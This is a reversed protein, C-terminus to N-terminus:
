GERKVAGRMRGHIDIEGRAIRTSSIPVGDEALVYEVSVIRIPSRGADHRLENIKLAVPYTEPSVVIYDYDDTLTTGYPDILEVIRYHKGPIMLTEIYHLINAKRVEYDDVVRSRQRAMENVTLGIHVEGDDEDALEFAKKILLRHGDHFYEFTGGVAIKVM